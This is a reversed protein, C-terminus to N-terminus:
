MVSDMKAEDYSDYAQKKYSIMFNLPGTAVQGLRVLVLNPNIENVPAGM